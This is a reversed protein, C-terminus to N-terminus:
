VIANDRALRLEARMRRHAVWCAVHYMVESAMLVLVLADETTMAGEVTRIVDPMEECGWPAHACRFGGTVIGYLALIELEM